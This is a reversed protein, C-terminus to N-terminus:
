ISSYSPLSKKKLRESVKELIFCTCKLFLGYIVKITFFYNINSSIEQQYTVRKKNIKFAFVVSHTYDDIMESKIDIKVVPAPLFFNM